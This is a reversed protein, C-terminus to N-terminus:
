SECGVGDKERDLRHPDPPLVQIDDYGYRDQIEGCDLDPPPSPICVEPYSPDCNGGQAPEPTESQPPGHTEGPVIASGLGWLGLGDQRAARELELFDDAHKVDPPFTSVQAYGGAVLLANVMTGDALWVYRLLRGFQDTESVDKELSVTQGQVLSKNYESAERGYPEEGRTPHVTEPTDVGIYRVRYEQGNILVDITDGDVVNVVLAEAQSAAAPNVETPTSTPIATPTPVPTPSLAPQPTATPAPTPQITNTPAPVLTAINPAETGPPTEGPTLIIAIVAVLLMSTFGVFAYLLKREM